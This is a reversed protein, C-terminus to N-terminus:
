VPGYEQATKLMYSIPHLVRKVGHPEYFNFDFVVKLQELKKVGDFTIFSSSGYPTNSGEAFCPPGTLFGIVLIIITRIPM